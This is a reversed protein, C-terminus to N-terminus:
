NVTLRAVNNKASATLEVPVGRLQADVGAANGIKLRLSESVPIAESEGAKALRAMLVKNQANRIEIWSDERLKLVLMNKNEATGAAQGPVDVQRNSGQSATAGEAQPAAILNVSNREAPSTSPAQKGAASSASDNAVSANNQPEVSPNADANNAQSNIEKQPRDGAVQLVSELGAIWSQPLWDAKWAVLLAMLLILFGWILRRAWTGSTTTLNLSRNAYFPKAPLARRLPADEVKGITENAIMQLLPAPDLKLLKAYSRIFGRTVAMGPLASYNDSEIAHIQRPALHLTHAVDEVSWQLEERRAALM